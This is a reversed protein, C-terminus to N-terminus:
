LHMITLDQFIKMLSFNELFLVKFSVMFSPNLTVGTIKVTMVVLLYKVTLDLFNTMFPFIELFLFKFSVYFHLNVTVGMTKLTTM